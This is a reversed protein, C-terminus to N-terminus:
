HRSQNLIYTAMEQTTKDYYSLAKHLHRQDVVSSSRMRHTLLYMNIFESKLIHTARCIVALGQGDEQELIQEVVEADLGAYVSMLAIFNNLQGRRLNDIMATADLLGKNYMVEAAAIMKATPTYKSKAVESMEFVIDDVVTESTTTAQAHSNFNTKIYSKLEDGVFEYLCTALASPIEPRMLLPKALNESHQAMKTFENLAYNTLHIKENESLVRATEVDGTEVLSDLVVNSLEDRFAISRWHGEAHMKIISVLNNDKLVKSKRLVPDAIAIDDNALRLAINLPVNDVVAMRESIAARLDKEAQNILNLLLDTILGKEKVSLDIDILGTMVDVLEQNITEREESDTKYKQQTKNLKLLLGKAQDSNELLSLIIQSHKDASSFENSKNPKTEEVADTFLIEVDQEKLDTFEPM